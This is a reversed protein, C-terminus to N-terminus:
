GVIQWNLKLWGRPFVNRLFRLARMSGIVSHDIASRRVYIYIYFFLLLGALIALLTLLAWGQWEYFFPHINRLAQRKCVGMNALLIAVIVVNSRDVNKIVGTYVSIKGRWARRRERERKQEAHRSAFCLLTTYGVVRGTENSLPLIWRARTRFHVGHRLTFKMWAYFVTMPADFSDPFTGPPISRNTTKLERKSGQRPVSLRIEIVCEQTVDKTYQFVWFKSM